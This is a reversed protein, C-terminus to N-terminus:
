DVAEARAPDRPLPYTEGARIVLELIRWLDDADREEVARINMFM